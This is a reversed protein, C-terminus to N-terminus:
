PVTRPIETKGAEDARLEEALAVALAAEEASAALMAESATSSSIGLVNALEVTPRRLERAWLLLVIRRARTVSRARNRSPFSAKPTGTARSVLDLVTSVDVRWAVQLDSTPVGAACQEVRLVGSQFAVNPTDIEVQAGLAGRVASRRVHMDGGSLEVSRADNSRAVVMEHFRLRGSPTASFGCLDLGHQVDLWPPAPALGLYARHSTWSSDAPDVVVGARVPNNHIYALLVAATDAEFTLTRHRDAFVPGLRGQKGNLWGAFGAHLPKIVASSPQRGARMAWHVHSSMLAYGFARWDTRALAQGARNLYEARAHNADLRREHNVFRSIVHQVSGEAILRRYRPM